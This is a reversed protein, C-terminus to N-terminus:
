KGFAEFHGLLWSDGFLGSPIVTPAADMEVVTVLTQMASKFIWIQFGECVLLRTADGDAATSISGANPTSTPTLHSGM